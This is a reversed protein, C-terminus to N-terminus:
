EIIFDRISAVVEGNYQIEAKLQVPGKEAPVPVELSLIKQDLGDLKVPVSQKMYVRDGRFLSFQVTGSYETYTDNILYIPVALTKGAVASKEWFKVMIGVPSFAQKMYHYFRPEYQLKNIDIFNDSTQGRPREPRSYGLGCFYMVAAAHRTTRWYETLIGLNKTYVEIRKKATNAEPFVKKYVIDTLTTTSGDRNLWLWGYENVISPNKYPEGNDRPAHVNPDNAPYREEDLIDHLYGKKGPYLEKNFYYDIFLYPHSEIADSESDPASWGNDWPRNSLDLNRVLRISSGPISNMTENQADWIVVCPHNWRERMWQRYENALRESTINRQKELGWVPYEDQILFGLSDAIEYWREPPFGICYRISNLHLEKFRNHLKAIWQSDWPLSKRDPDEFFRFICVNTGRMYYPKGNLLFVRSDRCAEFSRMGFRTHTNDGETSLELEYLFPNEPTWLTCGKMDISFDALQVKGIKGPESLATGQAVVDGSIVEKVSYGIQTAEDGRHVIEVAVRLKQEPVNPAVQVNKIFGYDAIILKVDDYIGPIYKVKEYDNGRIVSDPMNNSCGVSIVLENQEKNLFPKLNFFSPTFCYLNEGVFKGNLYVKTHYKAKNVKLQVVDAETRNLTFTKKYWYVSNKYATDQVDIEPVAMDVLGPVPAESGFMDPLEALTDTRTIQWQGNLSIETRKDKIRTCGFVWSLVGIAIIIKKM